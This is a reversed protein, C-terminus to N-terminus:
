RLKVKIAKTTVQETTKEPGTEKLSVKTAEAQQRAKNAKLRDFDPGFISEPTPLGNKAQESQKAKGEAEVASSM